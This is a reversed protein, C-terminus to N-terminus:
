QREVKVGRIRNFLYSIIGVIAMVPLTTGVLSVFPMLFRYIIFGIVWIAINEARFKADTNEKRFLYYDVFLITFLPAFVSSIFYLFNEYRDVYGFLAIVTGIICMIVAAFKEDIKSSINATCVGASYVDLFTTTITSFLIIVMAVLSLGASLLIITIDSTGTYIGAGLGVIFMLISGLSYSLVSALTGKVPRKLNRTYDSILPLWSLSMAVNLEVAGGFSIAETVVVAANQKTFVTYGMILTFIFLITVVISNVKSLNKAGLLVWILIFVGIVICCLKENNYNVLTGTIEGFAKAGNTIMIATWGLLQIINLVSFSYSGYIGFSIKSTEAASLGSKAGILGAMFLIIAGIVHGIVISLIGQTLGLPAILAGTIIEAISVAAGFWLLVHSFISQAKSNTDM